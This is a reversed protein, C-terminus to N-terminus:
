PMRKYVTGLSIWGPLEVTVAFIFRAIAMIFDARKMKMEDSVEEAHARGTVRSIIGAV